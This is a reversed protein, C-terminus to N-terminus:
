GPINCLGTFAVNKQTLDKDNIRSKTEKYVQLDFFFVNGDM